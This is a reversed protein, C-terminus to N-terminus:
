THQPVSECWTAGGSRAGNTKRKRRENAGCRIGVCKGRGISQISVYQKRTGHVTTFRLCLVHLPVVGWEGGGGRGRCLIVCWM